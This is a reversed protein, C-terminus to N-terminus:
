MCARTCLVLSCPVLLVASALEGGAVCLVCGQECDCGLVSCSVVSHYYNNYYTTEKGIKTAFTLLYGPVGSLQKQKYHPIITPVGTTYFQVRFVFM